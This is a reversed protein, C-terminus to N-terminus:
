EGIQAIRFKALAAAAVAVIRLAQLLDRAEGADAALASLRRDIRAILGSFGEALITEYDLTTHNGAFALVRQDLYKQWPPPPPPPAAQAPSPTTPPLAVVPTRTNTGVILEDDQIRLARHRFAHAMAHAERLIPSLGVTAANSRERLSWEGDDWVAPTTTVRDRIRAIRDTTM